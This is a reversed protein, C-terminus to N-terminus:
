PFLRVPAGAPQPSQALAPPRFVRLSFGAGSSRAASEPPWPYHWLAASCLRRLNNARNMGAASRSSKRRRATQPSRGFIGLALIQEVVRMPEGGSEVRYDAQRYYPLREEYLKRFSAEDRFLPRDGMLVCRQLLDETSCDLWIVVAGPAASRRALNVSSRPTARSRSRAAAWRWFWGRTGSRRRDWFARWANTSSRASCRKAKKRSFKHFPCARIRTRNGRRSRRLALRTARRAPPRGHEQGLGHIRDPLGRPM